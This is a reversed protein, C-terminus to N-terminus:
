VFCCKSEVKKFYPLLDLWGWGLNGLNAWAEYDEWGGRNWCMGNIISGGGLAKGLDYPRRKGDLYTQPTTFLNWDYSTGM